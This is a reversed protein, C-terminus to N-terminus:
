EKAREWSATEPEGPFHIGPLATLHRGGSERTYELLRRLQERGRRRVGAEPHNPALDAFNTAPILFVDALALDRDALKKRLRGAARGPAKLEASPQIHSRDQFLGIDAGELGLMAILDLAQEHPLLPFAFDACSLRAVWPGSM